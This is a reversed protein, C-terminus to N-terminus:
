YNIGSQQFALNLLSILGLNNGWNQLYNFDLNEQQLKLVGLLNRWQKQPEGKTMKYWVLKQLITDEPSCLYIGQGTSNDTIFLLRRNMKSQAFDDERSIFIDAKEITELHILNFSLTKGTIAEDIAIESFYFEQNIQEIFSKKQELKMKIVLDLDQTYRV